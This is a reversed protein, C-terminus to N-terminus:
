GFTSQVNLQQTPSDIKNRSRFGLVVYTPTSEGSNDLEFRISSIAPKGYQTCLTSYVMCYKKINIKAANVGNNKIIADNNNNPKLTLSYDLGRVIKEQDAFGFLDKQKIRM